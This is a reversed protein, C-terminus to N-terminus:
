RDQALRRLAWGSIAAACVVLAGSALLAADARDPEGM